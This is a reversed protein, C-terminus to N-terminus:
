DKLKMRGTIICMLVASAKCTSDFSLCVFSATLATMFIESFAYSQIHFFSYSWVLIKIALLIDFYAVLQFTKVADSACWFIDM